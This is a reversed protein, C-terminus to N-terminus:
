IDKDPDFYSIDCRVVDEGTTSQVYAAVRNLIKAVDGQTRGVHAVGITARKRLEHDDIESVSVNFRHATRDTVSKVVRRKDKLSQSSALFIEIRCTGVIM